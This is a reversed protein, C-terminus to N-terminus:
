KLSFQTNRGQAVNQKGRARKLFLIITKKIVRSSKFSRPPHPLPSSPHYTPNTYAGVGSQQNVMAVSDQMQTGHVEYTCGTTLQPRSDVNELPFLVLNEVEVLYIKSQELNFLNATNNESRCTFCILLM